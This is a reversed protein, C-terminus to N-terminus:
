TIVVFIPAGYGGFVTLWATLGGDPIVDEDVETTAKESDTTSPSDSEALHAMVRDKENEQDKDGSRSLSVTDPQWPQALDSTLSMLTRNVIAAM